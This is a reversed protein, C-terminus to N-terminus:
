NSKRFQRRPPGCMNVEHESLRPGTIEFNSWLHAVPASTIVEIGKLTPQRSQLVDSEWFPLQAMYERRNIPDLDFDAPFISYSIPQFQDSPVLAETRGDVAVQMRVTKRGRDSHLALACSLFYIKGDDSSSASCRGDPVAAQMQGPLLFIQSLVM